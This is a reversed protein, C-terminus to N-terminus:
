VCKCQIQHQFRHCITFMGGANCPCFIVLDDTYMHHNILYNCVMCRTGCRNLQVSLDNSIYTYCNDPRFVESFLIFGDDSCFLILHNAFLFNVNSVDANIDGVVHSANDQIFSVVCALRNFYEDENQYWEYVTHM